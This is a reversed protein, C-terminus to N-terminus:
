SCMYILTFLFVLLGLICTVHDPNDGDDNGLRCMEDFRCNYISEYLQQGLENLSCLGTPKTCGPIETEEENLFLKIYINNSSTRQCDKNTAQKCDYVVFLLNASMPAIKSIRFQRNRHYAFNSALLHESPKFLNLITALPIVTEAHCFRFSGKIKNESYNKMEYYIQRVLPCSMKWNIESGYSRKWYNKLDMAYSVVEWQDLDFLLCFPSEGRESFVSEFVCARSMQVVDYPLLANDSKNGTLKLSIERALRNMEEGKFFKKRESSANNKEVHVNNIYKHCLDFFRMENDVNLRTRNIPVSDLKCDSLNGSGLFLGIGFAAASRATREMDTSSFEYSRSSFGKEFLQSLRRSIRQALEFQERLGRDTVLSCTHRTLRIPIEWTVAWGYQTHNIIDSLNRLKSKLTEFEDLQKVSPYRTGHRIVANVHVAKCGCKGDSDLPSLDTVRHRDPYPSKTGFDFARGGDSAAFSLSLLSFVFSHLAM